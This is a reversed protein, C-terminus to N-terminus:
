PFEFTHSESLFLTAQLDNHKLQHFSIPRFAHACLEPPEGSLMVTKEFNCKKLGPPYKM